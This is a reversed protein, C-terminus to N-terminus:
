GQRLSYSSVPTHCLLSAPVIYTDQPAPHYLQFVFEQQCVKLKLSHSWQKSAKHGYNFVVERLTKEKWQLTLSNFAM